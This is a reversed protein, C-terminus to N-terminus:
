RGELELLAESVRRTYDQAAEGVTHDLNYIQEAEYLIPEAFLHHFRADQAAWERLVENVREYHARIVPDEYAERVLPANVITLDFGLEKAQSSIRDLVQRSHAHMIPPDALCVARHHVLDQELTLPLIPDMPMFGDSHIVLGHASLDRALVGPDLLFKRLSQHYTAAPFLHTGVLGVKEEFDLQSPSDSAIAAMVPIPLTNLDPKPRGWFDFVHILVVHEPVGVRDIVRDLMFSVADPGAPAVLCLNVAEGGLVQSAVQPDIGQNGSSDGLFLYDPAAELRDAVRWKAPILWIDRNLPTHRIAYFFVANTMLWVLLLSGWPGIVSRWRRPQVIEPTPDKGLPKRTTQKTTM